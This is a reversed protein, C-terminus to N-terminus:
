EVRQHASEPSSSKGNVMHTHTHTGDCGVRDIAPSTKFHSSISKKAGSVVPCEPTDRELASLPHQLSVHSFHFSLNFFLDDVVSIPTPPFPEKKSLFLSQFSFTCRVPQSSTDLTRTATFSIPHRKLHTLTEARTAKISSNIIRM